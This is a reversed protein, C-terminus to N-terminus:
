LFWGKETKGAPTESGGAFVPLGTLFLLRPDIKGEAVRQEGQSGKNFHLLALSSFRGLLRSSLPFAKKPSKTVVRNGRSLFVDKGRYVLTLFFSLLLKIM